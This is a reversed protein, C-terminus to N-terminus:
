SLGGLALAPTEARLPAILKRFTQSKVTVGLNDMKPSLFTAIAPPTFM